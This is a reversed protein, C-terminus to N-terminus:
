KPLVEELIYDVAEKIKDDSLDNIEKVRKEYEKTVKKAETKAEAEADALFEDLGIRRQARQRKRDTEEKVKVLSEDAQIQAKSVIEVAEAEAKDILAILRENLNLINKMEM